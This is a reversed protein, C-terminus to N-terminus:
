PHDAYIGERGVAEDSLAPLSTGAEEAIRDLTMALSSTPPEVKQEGLMRDVLSAAAEGLIQLATRTDRRRLASRLSLELDSSLDLTITM